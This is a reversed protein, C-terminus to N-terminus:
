IWRIREWMRDKLDFMISVMQDRFSSIIIKIWETFDDTANMTRERLHSILDGMRERFGDNGRIVRAWRETLAPHLHNLYSQRWNEELHM